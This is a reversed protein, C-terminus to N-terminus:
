WSVGRIAAQYGGKLQAETATRDGFSATYVTDFTATPFQAKLKELLLPLQMNTAESEYFLIKKGDLKDLRPSLAKCEVASPIGQPNLVKYVKDSTAAVPKASSTSAPATVTVTVTPQAAASTTGKPATSSTTTTPTGGQSCASLMLALILFVGSIVAILHRV